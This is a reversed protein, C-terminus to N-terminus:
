ECNYRSSIKATENRISDVNSYLTYTYCVPASRVNGVKAQFRVRFAEPNALGWPRTTQFQLSAKSLPNPISTRLEPAVSSIPTFSVYYTASESGIPAVWDFTGDQYWGSLGGSTGRNIYRLQPDWQFGESFWSGTQVTAAVNTRLSWLASAGSVGLGGLFVVLFVTLFVRWRSRNM